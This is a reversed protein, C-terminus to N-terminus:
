GPMTRCLMSVITEASFPSYLHGLVRRVGNFDGVQRHGVFVFGHEPIDIELHRFSDQHGNNARVSGALGGQDFGDQPQELWGGPLHQDLARGIFLLAPQDAVDRLAAAYVPVEGGADDIHDHHAAIARQAPDAPRSLVSRWFAISARSFTPM